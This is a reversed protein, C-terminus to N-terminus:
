ATLAPTQNRTQGVASNALDAQILRAYIRRATEPSELRIEEMIIQQQREVKEAQVIEQDMAHKMAVLKRLEAQQQAEFTAIGSKAPIMRAIRQKAMWFDPHHEGRKVIECLEINQEAHRILANVEERRGFARETMKSASFLSLDNLRAKDLHKKRKSIYGESVGLIDACERQRKGQALLDILEEDTFKSSM